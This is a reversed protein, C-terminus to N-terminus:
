TKSLKNELTNIHDTWSLHEDVLVRLFKISSSRKIDYDYIKLVPLRIPLNDRDKIRDFTYIQNQRRKLSLKNAWFWESIKKLELNTNVFLTKIDIRLCFLNTDAFM